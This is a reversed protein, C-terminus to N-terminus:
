CTFSYPCTIFAQVAGHPRSSATVLKQENVLSFEVVEILEIYEVPFEVQEAGTCATSQLENLLLGTPALSVLAVQVHVRAYQSTREAAYRNAPFFFEVDDIFGFTPSQYEIYLYDATQKIINVSFKDPQVENVVSVLEEMAQKQNVPKKLARGDAPNYQWAPVYHKDDNM